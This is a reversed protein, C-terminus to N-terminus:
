RERIYTKEGDSPSSSQNQTFVTDVLESRQQPDESLLRQTESQEEPALDGWSGPDFPDYVAGVKHHQVEDDLSRVGRTSYISPSKVLTYGLCQILATIGDIKEMSKEKDPRIMGDKNQQRVVNGAMWKLVPNGGHELLGNGILKVLNKSPESMGSYGQPYRECLVGAKMLRNQADRDQWQDFVHGRIDLVNGLSLVLDCIPELDVFEGETPILFGQRIWTPYPVGASHERRDAMDRPLWFFPIVPYMGTWPNKQPSFLILATIDNTSSLDFSAYWTRDPHYLWSPSQEVWKLLDDRRHQTLLGIPPVHVRRWDLDTRIEPILPQPQPQPNSNPNTAQTRHTDSSDPNPNASRTKYTDSNPNVTETQTSDQARCHPSPVLRQTHRSNPDPSRWPCRDWHDLNLWRDASETLMNLYLRKFTNEFDPDAVAKALEDDLFEPTVSVGYNPNATELVDKQKWNLEEGKITRPTEYIIPLWTARKSHNVDDRISQSLRLRSNCVSVRNYDATTVYITIPQTRSGHGTEIGTTLSADPHTHLEEIVGVHVNKGHLADANSSLAKYVDRTTPRKLEISKFSKYTRTHESLLPSSAVMNSAHYFIVSAQEIESAISYIQAGKEGDCFLCYLVVGAILPTKGNKRPVYLFLQRFRRRDDRTRKWGFLNTIIRAQWEELIFPDGARDGEVLTLVNEYFDLARQAEDVDFYHNEPDIGLFPNYGPYLRGQSCDGPLQVLLDLVNWESEGHYLCFQSAAKLVRKPPKKLRSAPQDYLYSSYLFREPEYKDIKATEPCAPIQCSKKTM